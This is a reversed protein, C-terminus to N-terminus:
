SAKRPRSRLNSFTTRYRHSDDKSQFEDESMIGGLVGDHKSWKFVYVDHDDIVEFYYGDAGIPGTLIVCAPCSCYAMELSFSLRHDISRSFLILLFMICHPQMALRYPKLGFEPFSIKTISVGGARDPPCPM